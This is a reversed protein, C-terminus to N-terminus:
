SSGSPAESAASSASASTRGRTRCSRRRRRRRSAQPLHLDPRLLGLRHREGRRRRHGLHGDSTPARAPARDADHPGRRRWTSSPAQAARGRHTGRHPAPPPAATTLARRSRRSRGAPGAASGAASRCRAPHRRAPRRSARRTGAPHRRATGGSGARGHDDSRPSRRRQDPGQDRGQLHATFSWTRPAADPLRKAGFLVVVVLLLLIIETPKLNPM